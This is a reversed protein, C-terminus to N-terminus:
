REREWSWGSEGVQGVRLEVAVEEQPTLRVQPVFFSSYSDVYVDAYEYM